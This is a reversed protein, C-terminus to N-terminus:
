RPHWPEAVIQGDQVFAVEPKRSTDAGRGVREEPSIAILKGIRLQAPALDLACVISGSDGLAGAQVTGRVRGWVIVDGGAIVEAGPNIDGVVVIHGPHQVLQGSRLTRRVLLGESVDPTPVRVGPVDSISEPLALRIQLTEAASSSVESDTRLSALRVSHQGLINVLWRLEDTSLNRNGVNVHVNSNRFFAPAQSLRDQVEALLSKWEGEGLTISPGKRTGKIMVQSEAM